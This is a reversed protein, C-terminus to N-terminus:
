SVPVELYYGVKRVTGISVNSELFTLKKRLFSIYVEVNNDEADSDLGWVRAIIDEKPVVARPHVMLQRLVDFEKFGLRVSKDGQRLCRTSLELTLDGATLQEGIVEGQRRTLARVRALLEGIDFPKTMYDDAGHDLGAIKDPMEDRATLMLIPTSVHAHRLRSAVEFGDLKPLMVDLVIVDYQETLAYDLGDAGDYVVDTQYRQEAMIQGLAEALRREDEVILVRM